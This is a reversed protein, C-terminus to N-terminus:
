VFFLNEYNKVFRDTIKRKAFESGNKLFCFVTSLKNYLLTGKNLIKQNSLKELKVSRQLCLTEWVRSVRKKNLLGKLKEHKSRENQHWILPEEIIGLTKLWDIRYLFLGRLDKVVNNSILQMLSDVFVIAENENEFYWSKPSEAENLSSSWM